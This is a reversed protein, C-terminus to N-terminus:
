SCDSGSSLELGSLSGSGFRSDSFCGPCTLGDPGLGVLELWDSALFGFCASSGLLGELYCQNFIRWSLEGWLLFYNLNWNQRFGVQRTTKTLIQLKCGVEMEKKDYENVKLSCNRRTILSRCSHVIFWSMLLSVKCPRRANIYLWTPHGKFRRSWSNLWSSIKLQAETDKVVLFIVGWFLESIRGKPRWLWNKKTMQPIWTLAWANCALM